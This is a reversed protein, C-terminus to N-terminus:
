PCQEPQNGRCPEANRLREVEPEMIYQGIADQLDATGLETLAAQDGQVGRRRIGKVTVEFLAAPQGHRIVVHKQRRSILPDGGARHLIGEAPNTPKRANGGSPCAWRANMVQPMGECCPCQLLARRPAFRDRTVEDGQRCVHAVRVDGM